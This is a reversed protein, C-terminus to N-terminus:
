GTGLLEELRYKGLFFAKKGQRLMSAQWPTLLNGAILHQLVEDPSTLPRDAVDAQLQEWDAETLLNSKRLARLLDLM